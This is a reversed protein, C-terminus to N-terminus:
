PHDHKDTAVGTQQNSCREYMRDTISNKLGNGFPLQYHSIVDVGMCWKIDDPLLAYNTELFGLAYNYGEQCSETECFKGDRALQYISNEGIKKVSWNFLSPAAGGIAILVLGILTYKVSRQM